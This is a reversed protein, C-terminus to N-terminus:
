SRFKGPTVGVINKFVKCYYSQDPFGMAVAIDTISYDTSLLLHKSEEVRVRCANYFSHFAVALDMAYHTIRSPDMKEEAVIIENPLNSLMDLLTLEDKERLLTLNAPGETNKDEAMQRLISHLFAPQPQLSHM